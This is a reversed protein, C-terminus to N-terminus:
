EIPGGEEDVFDPDVSKMIKIFLEYVKERAENFQANVYDTQKTAM